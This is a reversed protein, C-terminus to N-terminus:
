CHIHIVTYLGCSRYKPLNTGYFPIRDVGELDVWGLFLLDTTRPIHTNGEITTGGFCGLIIMNLLFVLPQQTGGNLSVGMYCRLDYPKMYRVQIPLNDVGIRLSDEVSALNIM